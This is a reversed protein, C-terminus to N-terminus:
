MLRKKTLTISDDSVQVDYGSRAIMMRYADAGSGYGTVIAQGLDRAAEIVNGPTDM